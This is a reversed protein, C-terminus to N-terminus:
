FGSLLGGKESIGIRFYLLDPPERETVTDVIFADLKEKM